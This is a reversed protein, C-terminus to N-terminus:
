KNFYEHTLRPGGLLLCWPLILCAFIKNPSDGMLSCPSPVLLPESLLWIHHLDSGLHLLSPLFCGLSYSDLLASLSDSVWFQGNSSNQTEWYWVQRLMGVMNDNVPLLRHLTHRWAFMATSELTVASISPWNDEKYNFTHWTSEWCDWNM